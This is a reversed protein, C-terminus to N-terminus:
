LERPDVVVRVTGERKHASRIALGARIAASLAAGAALPARLLARVTDADGVEGAPLPAPFPGLLEATAPLEIEMLLDTVASLDGTLTAARVTPPFHLERRETLDREAFTVPDGRVVTQVIRADGGGAIVVQGESRALSVAHFWRRASEEGGGMGPLSTALAGDLLVVVAYGGEAEPEAGPTAVVLRPRSDLDAVVGRDASSVVVPTHPFARGLEEATRAAGVRMARLGSGSCAACRWQEALDGCEVCVPARATDTVALAGQCRPCHAIERCRACVLHPVYGARPVQVLVPGAPLGDGIARWVPTPVRARAGDRALDAEDLARVRVTRARVWERDARLSAAWGTAVLHQSWTSRATGAILLAAAEPEARMALVQAAAPYPARQECLSDDGDDWCVVLGLDTMPAWAASRTGVVVRSLGLLARLHARARVSPGDSAVLRGVEEGLGEALVPVLRDVDRVDPVVVLVSRGATRTARVADLIMARALTPLGAHTWVARPAQGDRLRSLWAPGGPLDDWGTPGDPAALGGADGRGRELAALAAKETRAHRPPVAFRLVDTLTGAYRDAVQRALTLVQPTLYAVPSVLRRISALSRGGDGEERDRVSLVWGDRDRGAFSVKVRTGPAVEGALSAPVLYDFPRDLHTLPIDVAVQAVRSVPPTGPDPAPPQQESVGGM